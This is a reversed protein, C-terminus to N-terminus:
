ALRPKPPDVREPEADYHKIIIDAQRGHLSQEDFDQEHEILTLLTALDEDAAHLARALRDRDIM